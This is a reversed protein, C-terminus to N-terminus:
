QRDNNTGNGDILFSQMTKADESSLSPLIGHMMRSMRASEYDQAAAVKIM